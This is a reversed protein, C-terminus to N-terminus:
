IARLIVEKGIDDKSKTSLVCHVETYNDFAFKMLEFPSECKEFNFIESFRSGRIDEIFYAYDLHALWFGANVGLKLFQMMVHIEEGCTNNIDFYNNYYLSICYLDGKCAEEWLSNESMKGFEETEDFESIIDNYLKGGYYASDDVPKGCTCKEYTSECFMFENSNGDDCDPEEEIPEEEIPEEKIPEWYLMEDEFSEDTM